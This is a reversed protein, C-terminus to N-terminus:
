GIKRTRSTDRDLAYRIASKLSTAKALQKVKDTYRISVIGLRRKGKTMSELILNPGTAYLITLIHSEIRVIM